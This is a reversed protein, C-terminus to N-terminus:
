LNELMDNLIKEIYNKNFRKKMEQKENEVLKISNSADSFFSFLEKTIGDINDVTIVKALKNSKLYQISAIDPPGVALICRNSCIYEGIKTSISLRTVKSNSNDFSECHLLYDSESVKENLEDSNIFGHYTLSEIEDFKSAIDLSLNDGSYISLEYHFDENMKNLHDLAKGISYITKWRNLGLSGAYLILRRKKISYDIDENNREVFNSMIYSRGNFYKRKYEEAMLDSISLLIKAKKMLKKFNKLYYRTLLFNLKSEEIHPITYDDTCQVIIPLDFEKSLKIVIKHLFSYMHAQYFIAQPKTKKVFDRIQNYYWRRSFWVLETILYGKKNIYNTNIPLNEIAKKRSNDFKKKVCNSYKSSLFNKVKNNEENLFEGHKKKKFRFINDLADFINFRLSANCFCRDEEELVFFVHSLLCKPYSDFITEITKGNNKTKSLANMSIILIKQDM